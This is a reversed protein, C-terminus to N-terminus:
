DALALLSDAHREMEDARMLLTEIDDEIDDLNDCYIGGEIVYSGEYIDVIDVDASREPVLWVMLAVAAAISGTAIWWKARHSRRPQPAPKPLREEPMGDGYWAFMAKLDYWERPLDDSAFYDYLEREEALTTRGDLFKDVLAKIDARHKM